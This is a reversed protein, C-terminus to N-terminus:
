RALLRPLDFSECLEDMVERESMDLLFSVGNSLHITCAGNDSEVYAVHRRQVFYTKHGSIIKLFKM